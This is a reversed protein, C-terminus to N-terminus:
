FQIGQFFYDIETAFLAQNPCKLKKEQPGLLFRYCKEGELM